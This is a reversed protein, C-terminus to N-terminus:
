DANSTTRGPQARRAGITRWQELTAERAQKGEGLSAAILRAMMARRLESEAAVPRDTSLSDNHRMSL